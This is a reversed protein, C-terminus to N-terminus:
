GWLTPMIWMDLKRVLAIEVPDTKKAAGSYDVEVLQEAAKGEEDVAFESHLKSPKEATVEPAKPDAQPAAMIPSALLLSPSTALALNFVSPISYLSFLGITRKLNFM